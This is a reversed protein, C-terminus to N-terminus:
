SSHTSYPRKLGLQSARSLLTKYSIGSVTAAQRMSGGYKKFLMPYYKNKYEEFTPIEEELQQAIETGSEPERAPASVEKRSTSESQTEFYAEVQGAEAVPSDFPTLVLAREVTAKLERINGPWHYDQMVLMAEKSFHLDRGSASLFHEVLHPIDEKRERLPPVVFPVTNIRFYLDARFRKAEVEKKLDANSGVIVRTNVQFERVSGIERYSRGELFRLFKAQLQIPITDIENLFLTSGEAARILGKKPNSADTFAGKTHGFLESEILHEPLSACHVPVLHRESGGCSHIYEAFHDKGSGTEGLLLITLPSSAVQEAFFHMSRAAKSVGIIQLKQQTNQRLSPQWSM